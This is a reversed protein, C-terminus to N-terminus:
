GQADQFVAHTVGIAYSVRVVLGPGPPPSPDAFAQGTFGLGFGHSPYFFSKRVTSLAPVDIVWIDPQMESISAGPPSPAGIIDLRKPSTMWLSNQLPSPPVPVAPGFLSVDDQTYGGEGPYRYELTPHLWWPMIWAQLDQAQFNEAELVFYLSQGLRFRGITSPLVVRQSQDTVDSGPFCNVSEGQYLIVPTFQAGLQSM